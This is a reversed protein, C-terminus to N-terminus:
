YRPDEPGIFSDGIKMGGQIIALYLLDVGAGATFSHKSGAKMLVEDGPRHVVGSSDIMTGQLVLVIEDGVHEHEPFVGGPPLRVFGSIANQVRAGGSFNYVSMDPSLLWSAADDIKDLLEQAREMAVDSIRAVQAAFREFRRGGVLPDDVSKFLRDKLSSSPAEAPIADLLKALLEGDVDGDDYVKTM